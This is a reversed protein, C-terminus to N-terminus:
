GPRGQPLEQATEPDSIRVEVGPLPFGVSGVRREGHYPNSTNMNTETMGYRELIRQGTREEFQVHPKPCCRHAAPSSCVCTRWWSASLASM